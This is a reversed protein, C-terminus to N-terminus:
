LSAEDPEVGVELSGGESLDKSTGGTTMESAITYGGADKDRQSMDDGATNGKKAM